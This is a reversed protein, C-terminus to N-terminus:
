TAIYEYTGNVCSLFSLNGMVYTICQSFVNFGNFDVVNYLNTFCHKSCSFQPQGELKDNELDKNELNHQENNPSAIPLNPFFLM